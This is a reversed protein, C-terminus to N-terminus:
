VKLFGMTGTSAGTRSSLEILYKYSALFHRGTNVIGFDSPKALRAMAPYTPGQGCDNTNFAWSVSGLVVSV